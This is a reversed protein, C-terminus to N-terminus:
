KRIKVTVKMDSGKIYLERGDSLYDKKIFAMGIRSSCRESYVESTLKGADAGKEDVLLFNRDPVASSIKVNTLVKQVKDYTGLRAIVEQGIYCGKTSSVLDMLRTEHPNYEDNLEGPASPIGQEIRYMNYAEEGVLNFDFLGRNNMMYNVLLRGNDQDSLFWYRTKNNMDRFKHIFFLIGESHVVKFTEPQINNVINGAVLMAFSDAQPGLLELLAYKTGTDTITVDDSIVYKDLWGKLKLKYYGSSICLQQTDFNMVAAIDIIRGKETTFVTRLVSEKPLDKLNNTSIRHLYDLVDQGKLEFIGCHSIDRLGVGDYLSKLEDATGSFNNMIKRGNSSDATFGHSEYFEILPTSVIDTDHM